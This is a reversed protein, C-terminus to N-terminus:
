DSNGFYRFNQLMNSSDNIDIVVLRDSTKSEENLDLTTMLEYFETFYVNEEVIDICIDISYCFCSSWIQKKM